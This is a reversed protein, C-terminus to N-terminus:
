NGMIKGPPVTEGPRWRSLAKAYEELQPNLRDQRMKRVAKKVKGPRKRGERASM